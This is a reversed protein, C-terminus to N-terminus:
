WIEVNLLWSGTKTKYVCEGEGGMELSPNLKEGTNYRQIDYGLFGDLVVFLVKFLLNYM